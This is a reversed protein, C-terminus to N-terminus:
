IPSRKLGGEWWRASEGGIVQKMAKWLMQKNILKNETGGLDGEAVLLIHPRDPVEEIEKPPVSSAAAITGPAWCMKTVSYLFAIWGQHSISHSNCVEM